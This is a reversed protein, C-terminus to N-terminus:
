TEAVVRQSEAAGDLRARHWRGPVPRPAGILLRHRILGQDGWTAARVTVTGKLGLDTFTHFRVVPEFKPAAGPTDRM